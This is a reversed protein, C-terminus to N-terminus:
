IHFVKYSSMWKSPRANNEKNREAQAGLTHWSNDANSKDPHYSSMIDVNTDKYVSFPAKHNRCFCLTSLHVYVVSFIDLM